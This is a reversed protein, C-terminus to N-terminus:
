GAIFNILFKKKKQYRDNVQSRKGGCRGDALGNTLGESRDDASQKAHM